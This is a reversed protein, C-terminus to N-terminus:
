NKALELEQHNSGLATTLLSLKCSPYSLPQSRRDQFGNPGFPDRPNSDWGRRWGTKPNRETRTMRASVQVKGCLQCSNVSHTKQGLAGLGCVARVLQLIRWRWDSPERQCSPQLWRNSNIERRWDRRGGLTSLAKIGHDHPPEIPKSTGDRVQQACQFSELGRADFEHAEGFLDIGARGHSLTHKGNESSDCFKFAAQDHFSHLSAQPIGARLALFETRMRMLM